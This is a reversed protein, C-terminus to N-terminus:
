STSLVVRSVMMRDEWSVSSLGICVRGGRWVIM